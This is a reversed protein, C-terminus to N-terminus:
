HRLYDATKLLNRLFWRRLGTRFIATQRRDLQTVDAFFRLNDGGLAFAEVVSVM